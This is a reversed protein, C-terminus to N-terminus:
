QKMAAPSPLGMLMLDNRAERAMESMPFTAILREYYLRAKENNNGSKYFRATRYLIQDAVPTKGYDKELRAYLEGAKERNAMMEYASATKILALAVFLDSSSKKAYISLNDAADQYAGKQYYLNGMVYFCIQHVTGFWSSDALKKLETITKDTNAADSVDGRRYADMIEEFRIQQKQSSNENIVLATIVVTSVTVILLVAIIVTKRKEQIVQKLTMLTREVPNRSVEIEKRVKIRAM